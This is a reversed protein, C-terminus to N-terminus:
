RYILQELKLGEMQKEQWHDVMLPVVVVVGHQLQAHQSREHLVQFGVGAVDPTAAVAAAADSAAGAAVTAASQQQHAGLWCLDVGTRYAVYM